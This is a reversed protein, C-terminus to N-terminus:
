RFVWRWLAADHQQQHDQWVMQMFWASHVSRFDSCIAVDKPVITPWVVDGGSGDSANPSLLLFGRVCVFVSHFHVSIAIAFKEHAPERISSGAADTVTIHKDTIHAHCFVLMIYVDWVCLCVFRWCRWCWCWVGGFSQEAFVKWRSANRHQRQTFSRWM